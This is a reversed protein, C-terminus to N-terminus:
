ISKQIFSLGILNPEPITDPNPYGIDRGINACNLEMKFAFLAIVFVAVFYHTQPTPMILPKLKPINM